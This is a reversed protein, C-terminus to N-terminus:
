ADDDDEDLLYAPRPPEPTSPSANRVGGDVAPLLKRPVLVVEHDLARALEVLSSTRLDTGGSEIKSIHSQPVGARASLDRQSLGTAERASRLTQLLEDTAYAVIHRWM